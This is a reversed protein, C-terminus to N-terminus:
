TQADHEGGTHQNLESPQQSNNKLKSNLVNVFRDGALKRITECRSCNCKDEESLCFKKKIKTIFDKVDEFKLLLHAKDQVQQFGVTKDYLTKEKNM